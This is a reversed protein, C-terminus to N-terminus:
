RTPSFPSTFGRRERPPFAAALYDLILDREATDFKPLGHRETMWELASAWNERSMGQQRVISTSHCATCAYFTEDRGKGEPLVEPTEQEPEPASQGAAPVAALCVVIAAAWAARAEVM